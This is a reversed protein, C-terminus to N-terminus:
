IVGDGTRALGRGGGFVRGSVAVGSGESRTMNMWREGEEKSVNRVRVIEKVRLIRGTTSPSFTHLVSQYRKLLGLAVLTRSSYVPLSLPSRILTILHHTPATSSSSSGISSLREVLPITSATAISRTAFVSARATICSLM